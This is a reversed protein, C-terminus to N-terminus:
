DAEVDAIEYDDGDLFDVTGRFRVGYHRPGFYGDVWVADRFEENSGKLRTPANFNSM